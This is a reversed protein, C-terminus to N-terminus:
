DDEAERIVLNIGHKKNTYEIDKVFQKWGEEPMPFEDQMAVISDVMMQLQEPVRRIGELMVEFPDINKSIETANEAIHKLIAKCKMEDDM